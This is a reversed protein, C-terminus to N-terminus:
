GPQGHHGNLFALHDFFSYKLNNFVPIRFLQDLEDHHSSIEEKIEDIIDQKTEKWDDIVDHFSDKIESLESHIMEGPNECETEEYEEEEINLAFPEEECSEDDEHHEKFETIIEKVKSPIEEIIDHLEEQFEEKAETLLQLAQPANEENNEEILEEEDIMEEEDDENCVECDIDSTLAPLVTGEVFGIIEQVKEPLKEIKDEHKSIFESAKESLHELKSEPIVSQIKCIVKNFIDEHDQDFDFLDFGTLMVRDELNEVAAPFWTVERHANERFRRSTLKPFHAKKWRTSIVNKMRQEQHYSQPNLCNLLSQGSHIIEM